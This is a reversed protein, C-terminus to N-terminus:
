SVVRIVHYLHLFLKSVDRTWTLPNVARAPDMHQFFVFETYRVNGREKLAAVLRRSEESPVNSDKADHMILMKAKLDGLNESPSIRRLGEQFEEALQALLDKAEELSVGNLLRYVIGGAPSLNGVEDQVPEEGAVFTGAVFMGALFERDERSEVSEILHNRFTKLTQDSPEWPEQGDESFRTGAAVSALLDRVDYYGGFFNIFAVEERIRHDQAAVTALSAGVCFGGMGVRESDVYELGRLYQFANVLNDVEASDIRFQTMTESWPVMVVMGSRALGEALNVVREDDRGAPNVGLFLLVAARRDTGRPRYLDAVGEGQAQPFFVEEKIPSETFWELPKVPFAPLVQFVFGGTKAATRGQPTAVAFITLLVGLVALALATRRLTKQLRLRM